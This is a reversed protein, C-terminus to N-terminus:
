NNNRMNVDAGRDLFLSATETNMRIIITTILRQFALPDELRWDYTSFSHVLAQEPTVVRFLDGVGHLSLILRYFDDISGGLCGESDAV